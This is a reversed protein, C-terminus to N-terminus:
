LLALDGVWQTLGSISGADEHIGTPNTLWQAVVPVGLKMESSHSTLSSFIIVLILTNVSCKIGEKYVFCQNIYKM